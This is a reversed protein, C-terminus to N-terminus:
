GERRTTKKRRLINTEMGGGVHVCAQYTREISGTKGEAEAM